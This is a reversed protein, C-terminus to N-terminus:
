AQMGKQKESVTAIRIKKQVCLAVGNCLQPHQKLVLRALRQSLVLELELASYHLLGSMSPLEGELVIADLGPVLEKDQLDAEFQINGVRLYTIYGDSNYCQM